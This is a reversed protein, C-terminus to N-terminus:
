RVKEKELALPVTFHFTSGVELESEVWVIGGHAEILAYTITMGLGTGSQEQALPNESRFYPTSLKKLDEPDMGIGTDTVACHLVEPAGAPDWKNPVVEAKITVVGGSPTYKNANSVFNTLVQILRNSDGMILPVNEPVDLVLKQEKEDFARQQPRLTEVLVNNFSIPATKVTLVGTELATLDRLDEVIQQMRVVNRQVIAIFDKQQDTLSGTMGGLLVEAYGKISAMPNKLEHAVFGVFKSRASNAQQLQAFLQSNTIAANAHEALAKIFSMNMMNFVGPTRTELLLVATVGKGATTMPVALQGVAEPLTELYDADDALETVLSASGTRYVRGIVGMDIPYIEGPTFTGKPYGLSGVIEFGLPDEHVLALAGADANSERLANDLTLNIVARLDLTRNLEQDIRQMNDLQQVRTALQQDTMQFLRANEIAIAAQSGFTTLLRVDDEVYGSGDTKNIVELVGIVGGRAILPVALIANTRFSADTQQTKQHVEGFWDSDQPANNVIIHHGTEVVKGVIGVGPPIRTGLLNTGGGGNVVSFILDGTAEDKLLLSGAEANLIEIARQTIIELLAEVNEFESALQTSIDNLVSLQRAREQTQRFLRAKDLAAAALDAINWFIRMQDDSYSVASDTTALMAVGLADRAAANLPVGMWARLNPNDLPSTSDRKASDATFNDTKVPQQARVVDSLLDHGMRWRKGEKKLEREGAEQYFAFYLEDPNNTRLAIYFNPAQIVKNTQTYIFELLTDLDMTINLSASVQNLVKLERENRQAELIVQAREYAVAAQNALGEIFRLDEYNYPQRDGRPGIALFGNLRSSSHLRAFVPTSLVSLRSRESALEPPLPHTATIYLLSNDGGMYTLLSSGPSFHIDTASQTTNIASVAEYEGTTMNRLFTFLHQPSLTQDLQAKLEHTVSSVETVSTLKRGFLELRNEFIRRQKFFTQDVVRDLRTRIPNIVTAIVLITVAILVPSDWQFAGATLLYLGFSLLSYAVIMVLGLGSYILANSIVTDSDLLRQQLLAYMMSLPLVILSPLAYFSPFALWSWGFAREGLLAVFWLVTPLIGISIGILMVGAQERAVPSPSETRRRVLSVVLAATGILAALMALLQPLGVDRAGPQQYIVYLVVFLLLGGILTAQRLFPTRRLAAIEYPFILALQIAAAGAICAAFLWLAVTQHTSILEFRGAAIIALAASIDTVLRASDQHSRLTLLVVGLGFLVLGTVFGVIFQGLFDVLPLRALVVQYTCTTGDSTYASCGTALVKQAGLRNVEVQVATGFHYRALLASYLNSNNPDNLVFTVDGSEGSIRTIRDGARLGAQQGNWVEGSVTKTENLVLSDSMFAGIFPTNYWGVALILFYILSLACAILSILSLIIGLVRSSNNSQQRSAVRALASVDPTGTITSM